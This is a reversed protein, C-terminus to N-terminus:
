LLNLPRRVDRGEDTLYEAISTTAYPTIFQLGPADEGAAVVVISYELAGHARLTEVVRAVAAGRQGIACYVCLVDQDRQSLITDVAVITKGTQRDGM